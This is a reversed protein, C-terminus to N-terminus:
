LRAAAELNELDAALREAESFRAISSITYRAARLRLAPDPSRLADALVSVCLPMLSQLEKSALHAVEQRLRDLHHSFAPDSLWRRLTSEGIGASRAAQAITPALAVIPLAAQQRYTLGSIDLPDLALDAPSPNRFAALPGAPEPETEPQPGSCSVPPLANKRAPLNAPQSKNHKAPM